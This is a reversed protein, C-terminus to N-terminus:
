EADKAKGKSAKAAKAAAREAERQAKEDLEDQYKEVAVDLDFAETTKTAKRQAATIAVKAYFTGEPTVVPVAYTSTGIQTGIETLNLANIAGDRVLTDMESKKLTAM